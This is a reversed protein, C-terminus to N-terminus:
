RTCFGRREFIECYAERAFAECIQSHGHLKMSHIFVQEKCRERLWANAAAHQDRTSIYMDIYIVLLLLSILCFVIIFIIDIPSVLAKSTLKKYLEAMKNAAATFDLMPM